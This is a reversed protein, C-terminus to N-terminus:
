KRSSAFRFANLIRQFFVVPQEGNIKAAVVNVLLSSFNAYLLIMLVVVSHMDAIKPPAFAIM